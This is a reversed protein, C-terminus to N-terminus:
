SEKFDDVDVAFLAANEKERQIRTITKKLEYEFYRRNSTLHCPRLSGNARTARQCLFRSGLDYGPLPVVPSFGHSPRNSDIGVCLQISELLLTPRQLPAVVGIWVDDQLIEHRLM